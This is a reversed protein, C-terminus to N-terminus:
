IEVGTLINIVTECQKWNDNAPNVFCTDTGGGGNLTNFGFGAILIDAGQGGELKDNGTGAVLVDNGDGGKEIAYICL